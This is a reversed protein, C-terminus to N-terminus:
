KAFPLRRIEPMQDFGKDFSFVDPIKLQKSAVLLACDTYSWDKDDYKQLTAWTERESEATLGM